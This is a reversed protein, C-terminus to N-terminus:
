VGLHGSIIAFGKQQTNWGIEPLLQLLPCRIFEPAHVALNLVQQALGNLLALAGLVLFFLRALPDNVVRTEPRWVGVHDSM